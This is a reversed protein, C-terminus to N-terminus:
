NEIIVQIGVGSSGLEKKVATRFSDWDRPDGVVKLTIQRLNRMSGLFRLVDSRRNETIWQHRNLGDSGYKYRDFFQLRVSSIADIQFPVLYHAISRRVRVPSGFIENLTFPLLKTENYVQRSVVLLSLFRETWLSETQRYVRSRVAIGSGIYDRSLM